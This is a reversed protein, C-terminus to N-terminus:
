LKMISSIHKLFNKKLFGVKCRLISASRKCFVKGGYKKRVKKIEPLFKTFESQTKSASHFTHNAVVVDLQRFGCYRGLRLWLEYDMVYNLNEDLYGYQNLLAKRHFSGPQNIQATGNLLEDFSIKKNFRIGICDGNEVIIKIKGCVTGVGEDEFGMAIHALVGPELYDDSNLWGFYKGTAVNLGKNIAHSQGKDKESVWYTIYKEYKKIIGVSGDTSNGDIIIYELNTYNQNLVSLITRELFRGQNYSPTVISIKPYSPDKNLLIKEDFLPRSIFEKIEESAFKKM